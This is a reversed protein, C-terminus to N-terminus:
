REEEKKPTNKYCVYNRRNIYSGITTKTDQTRIKNHTKFIRTFIVFIKLTIDDSDYVNFNEFTKGKSLLTDPLYLILTHTLTHRTQRNKYVIKM